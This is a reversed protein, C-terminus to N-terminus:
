SLISLRVSLKKELKANPIDFLVKFDLTFEGELWKQLIKRRLSIDELLAAPSSIRYFEM